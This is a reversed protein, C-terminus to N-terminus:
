PHKWPQLVKTKRLFILTKACRLIADGSGELDPRGWYALISYKWSPMEHGVFVKTKWHFVMIEACRLIGHGVKKFDPRGPCALIALTADRLKTAHLLRVKPQSIWSKRIRGFAIALGM